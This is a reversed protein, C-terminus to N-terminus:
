KKNAIQSKRNAIEERWLAGQDIWARLVGVQEATLRDGKKPMKLKSHLGAVAQVLLSDASKGPLIAPGHEGGQLASAREDLRLGSEQKAPGHCKWCTAEFIPQIDKAFDITRSAPPPLKTTDLEAALATQLFFAMIPAAAILAGAGANFMLFRVIAQM